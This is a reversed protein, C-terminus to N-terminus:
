VSNDYKGEVAKADKLNTTIVDLHSKIFALKWLMEIAYRISAPPSQKCTIIM